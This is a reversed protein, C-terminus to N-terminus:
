ICGKTCCIICTGNSRYRTFSGPHNPCEVGKYKAGRKYKKAVPKKYPKSLAQEITMGSKLRSVLTTRSIEFDEALKTIIYITGNWVIEKM